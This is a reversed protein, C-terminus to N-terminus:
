ENEADKPEFKMLEWSVAYKKKKKDKCVLERIKEFDKKFDLAGVDVVDYKYDIDYKTFKCMCYRIIMDIRRRVGVNMTPVCLGTNRANKKTAV